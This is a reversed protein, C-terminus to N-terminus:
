PHVEFLQILDEDSEYVVVARGESVL